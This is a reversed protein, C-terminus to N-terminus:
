ETEEVSRRYGAAMQAATDETMMEAITRQRRRSERPASAAAGDGATPNESKSRKSKKVKQQEPEAPKTKAHELVKENFADWHFYGLNDRVIRDASEDLRDVECIHTAIAARTKNTLHRLVAEVARLQLLTESADVAKQALSRIATLAQDTTQFPVATLRFEEQSRHANITNIDDVAARLQADQAAQAASDTSM